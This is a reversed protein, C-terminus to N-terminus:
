VRKKDTNYSIHHKATHVGPKKVFEGSIVHGLYLMNKQVKKLFRCYRVLHTGLYNILVPLKQYALRVFITKMVFYLKPCIKDLFNWKVKRYTFILEKQAFIFKQVPTERSARARAQTCKPCM